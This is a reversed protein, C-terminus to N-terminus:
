VEDGAHDLALAEQGKKQAQAFRGIHLGLKFRSGQVRAPPQM